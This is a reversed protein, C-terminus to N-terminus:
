IAGLEALKRYHEGLPTLECWGEEMAAHWMHPKSAGKPVVL